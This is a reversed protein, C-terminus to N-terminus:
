EKLKKRDLFSIVDNYKERLYEEKDKIWNLLKEMKNLQRVRVEPTRGLKWEQLDFYKVNAKKFEDQTEMIADELNRCLLEALLVSNNKLEQVLVSTQETYNQIQKDTNEQIANIQKDTNEQLAQIQKNTHEQLHEIQKNTSDTIAGIKIQTTQNQQSNSHLFILIACYLPLSIGATTIFQPYWAKSSFFISIGVFLIAMLGFAIWAFTWKYKGINKKNEM